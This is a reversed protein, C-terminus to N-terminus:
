TNAGTIAWARSSRWRAAQGELAPQPYPLYVERWDLLREAVARTPHKKRQIELFGTVKGM